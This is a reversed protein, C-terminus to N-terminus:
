ELQLVLNLPKALALLVGLYRYVEGCHDLMIPLTPIYFGVVDVCLFRRLARQRNPGNLYLFSSQFYAYSGSV